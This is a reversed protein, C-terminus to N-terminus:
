DDPPRDLAPRPRSPGRAAEESAEDPPEPIRKLSRVPSFLPPLFALTMGVTGIVITPRLGITSGLLGGIFSGIPITGWVIFRMTANMRGQMREPTIAQRLSVQNINYVPGCFSWLLGAAVLWPIPNSVPALPVLLMGAAFPISWIITRGLGFREAIPGALLAGLVYGINGLGLVVGITGPGLRLTRVLYLLYVAFAMNGFLNSTSTCAAIPRLLPHGLVYRLGEAIDRRMGALFSAGTAEVVVPPEGRRIRAVFLASVIFSLADVIIAFPAKVLGILIGALAPGVLQAGSRTVELRSNGEVLQDRAVLSPLYSQYAVDFFVTLVGTTLAVLYLQPM